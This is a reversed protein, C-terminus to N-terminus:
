IQWIRKGYVELALLVVVMAVDQIVDVQVDPLIAATAATTHVVM